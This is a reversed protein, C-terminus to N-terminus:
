INKKWAGVVSRNFKELGMAEIDKSKARCDYKRHAFRPLRRGMAAQCSFRVHNQLAFVDKAISALLSGYHPLGTAFPPGRLSLSALHRIKPWLNILIKSEKWFKM